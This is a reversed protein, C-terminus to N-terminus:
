PKERLTSETLKHAQTYQICDHSATHRRAAELSTNGFCAAPTQSLKVYVCVQMCVYIHTNTHALLHPVQGASRFVLNDRQTKTQNHRQTFRDMQTCQTDREVEM